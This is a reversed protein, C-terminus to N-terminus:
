IGNKWRIVKSKLKPRSVNLKTTVSLTSNIAAM